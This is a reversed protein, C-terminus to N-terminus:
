GGADRYYRAIDQKRKKHRRMMQEIRMNVQAETGWLRAIILLRADRVSLLPIEERYRLKHLLVFLCAMLVLAHHHHWSRWKRVQYDSMGLENKADDFCREVWDRQAQFWAYERSTHADQAGNSLSYRVKAKDNLTKTILLTRRRAQEEEGNWIWMTALHAKLRLWGKATRRVKVVDWADDDLTECYKDLRVPERNARLRTPAPGRSHTRPPVAIQPEEPYVMEDKHVDLVYFLGREDLGKMFEYSHGYLGDGGVWDCQVGRAVDEDIMDLAPQPKTRHIQEEKPIGVRECREADEAWCEPLFVRENILISFTGNCLSAYVGVQCNDVKGV